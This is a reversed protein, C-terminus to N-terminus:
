ERSRLRNCAVWRNCAIWSRTRFIGPAGPITDLWGDFGGLYDAGRTTFGPSTNQIARLSKLLLGAGVLLVFSLSVQVM